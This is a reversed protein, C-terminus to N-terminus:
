WFLKVIIFTIIRELNCLICICLTWTINERIKKIGFLFPILISLFLLFFFIKSTRWYFDISIKRYESNFVDMIEILYYFSALVGTFFILLNLRSMAGINYYKRWRPLLRLTLFVIQLYVLYGWNLFWISPIFITTHGGPIVSSENLNLSINQAHYMAIAGLILGIPLFWFHMSQKM